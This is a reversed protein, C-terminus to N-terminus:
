VPLFSPLVSFSLQPFLSLSRPFWLIVARDYPDSIINKYNRMAASLVSILSLSHGTRSTRVCLLTEHNEISAVAEYSGHIRSNLHCFTGTVNKDFLVECPIKERTTLDWPEVQCGYISM